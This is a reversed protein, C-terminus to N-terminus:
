KSMLFSVVLKRLTYVLRDPGVFNDTQSRSKPCKEFDHPTVGGV